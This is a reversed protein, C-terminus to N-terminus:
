WRHSFTGGYNGNKAVDQLSTAAFGHMPIGGTPNLTGTGSNSSARFGLGAWGYEIQSGDLYKLNVVSRTLNAKLVKSAQGAAENFSLVFVEGCPDVNTGPSVTTNDPDSEERDYGVFTTGRLCVMSGNATKKVQTNSSHYFADSGFGFRYVAADVTLDFGPINIVAPLVGSLVDYAMAVHYRRTPQSVVWDTAGPVSAGAKMSIFENLIRTRSLEASLWDAQAIANTGFLPSSMDPVDQNQVDIIRTLFLPDASEPSGATLEGSGYLLNANQPAYLINGAANPGTTAGPAATIAGVATHVGSYSVLNDSRIIQWNGMLQGTPGALGAAQAQEATWTNSNRLQAFAPANYDCPATGPGSSSLKHKINTFLPNTVTPGGATAQYTPPIDAMNLIEVYGERTHEAKQADTLNQQLRDTKFAQNNLQVKPPFTCSTDENLNLTPLGDAGQRVSASWMDGPSLFLTFDLVDDSNAAGRFRVKVAKGNVTDTNTISLMSLNTAQASYYPQFLMHGLGGPRFELANANTAPAPGTVLGPGFYTGAHAAGAFGAVAVAASIALISKKM